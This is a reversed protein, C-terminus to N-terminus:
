KYSYRKIDAVLQKYLECYREYRAPHMLQKEAVVCGLEGTHSCTRFRCAESSDAIEPYGLAFEAPQMQLDFLSITQFGPTDAIYGAKATPFFEVHRTTQKGRKGKHSIKGVTMLEIGFIRNILTSKGVGSQGAFAVNKGALYTALHELTEGDALGTRFIPFGTPEYNRYFEAVTESDPELDNKTLLLVPEIDHFYAYACLRDLLYYDIAPLTSSATILLVDLNSIRPRPLSNKRECISNIVYPIDPDGSDEYVVIDGPLPAQQKQRLIGRVMALGTFETQHNHLLYQGGVGRLIKAKTAM